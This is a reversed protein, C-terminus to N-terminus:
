RRDSESEIDEHESNGDASDDGSVQAELDLLEMAARSDIPGQRKRSQVPRQAPSSSSARSLKPPRDVSPSSSIRRRKCRVGPLNAAVTSDPPSDATLSHAPGPPLMSTQGLRELPAYSPSQRFSSPEQPIQPIPHELNSRSCVNVSFADDDLVKIDDDSDLLYVEEEAYHSQQLPKNQLAEAENVKAFSVPEPSSCISRSSPSPLSSERSHGIGALRQGSLLEIGLELEMDDTDDALERDLQSLSMDSSNLSMAQKGRPKTKETKKSKAPAKGRVRGKATPMGPSLGGIGAQIARDDEESNGLTIKRKKSDRKKSILKSSPIFGNVAGDPINRMVDANRKRKTGKAPASNLKSPKTDRVYDEIAMTTEICKPKIHDPLLRGVDAFLELTEGRIISSQVSEYHEKAKDWNAEERAESLLVEVRGARKRGTRGVRQLQLWVLRWTMSVSFLRVMRIPTKQADYCIIMDVEGIDLGEEGISTAVLVNYVGEKFNKIM